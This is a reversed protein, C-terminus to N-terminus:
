LGGPLRRRLHLADLLPLEQHVSLDVVLADHLTQEQHAATLGVALLNLLTQEQHVNM